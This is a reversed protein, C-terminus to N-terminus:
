DHKQDRLKQISLYLNQTFNRSESVASELTSIRKEIRLEMQQRQESQLDLKDSLKNIAGTLNRIEVLQAQPNDDLLHADIKDELKKLKETELSEVKEELRKRAASDASLQRQVLWAILLGVIGSCGTSTLVNFLMENM